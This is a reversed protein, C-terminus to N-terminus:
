REMIKTLTFIHTGSDELRLKFEFLVNKFCSDFPIVHPNFWKDAQNFNFGMETTGM